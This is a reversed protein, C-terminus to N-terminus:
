FEPWRQLPSFDVKWMDLEFLEGFQDVNLVASVATGDADSFSLASIQNTFKRDPVQPLRLSLRLGGMGGDSMPEVWIDDLADSHPCGALTYLEALMSKEEATPRRFSM